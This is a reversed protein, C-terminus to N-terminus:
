LLYDLVKRVAEEPSKVPVVGPITNWSNLTFVPKGLQLAFATESLTGYKGNVAILASATNIIVINRGIGMGTAIPIKVFRNATAIDDAPLIGITLGGAEYAGKCAAEMVGSRGGCVLIGNNQAILRGVTEAAAYDAESCQSGGIVGILKAPQDM